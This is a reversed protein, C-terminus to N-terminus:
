KKARMEAKAARHGKAMGYNYALALAEFPLSEGYERLAFMDYHNIDYHRLNVIEESDIYRRIKQITDM